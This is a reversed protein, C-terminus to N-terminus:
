LLELHQRDSWMDCGGQINVSPRSRALCQAVAQPIPSNSWDRGSYPGWDYWWAVFVALCVGCEVTTWGFVDSPVGAM